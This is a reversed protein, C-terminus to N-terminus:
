DAARSTCFYLHYIDVIDIMINEHLFIMINIVNLAQSSYKPKQFSFINQNQFVFQVGNIKSFPVLSSYQYFGPAEIRPKVTIFICHM